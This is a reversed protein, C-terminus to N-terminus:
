GDRNEEFIKTWWDENNQYWKVTDYLGIVFRDLNYDAQWNLENMIKFINLAYRTDHGPRDSIFNLFPELNQCHPHLIKIVAKVMDINKMVTHTGINYINGKVGSHIIKDLAKCLDLVHIWNREQEGNGYIPVPIGRMINTIALPILKETYQFPGFNNCTRTIIAPFSYTRIYSQVLLDAGAKSASYPNSAKLPYSEDSFGKLVTGYVEDTSIYIFKKYKLDKGWADKTINLLNCTGEINTKIFPLSNAISRDVHSEAAFHVVTSIDYNAFISNVVSASCINGWVFKYNTYHSIEDLNNNKGAYTLDDLNIVFDDPYNRLWYQIFNSGIFGSGGTVLINAM